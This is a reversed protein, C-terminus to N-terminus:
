SDESKSFQFMSSTIVALGGGELNKSSSRLLKVVGDGGRGIGKIVNAGVKGFLSRVGERRRMAM